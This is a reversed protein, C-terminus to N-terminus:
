SNQKIVSRNYSQTKQKENMMLRRPKPWRRKLWLMHKQTRLRTKLMKKRERRESNQKSNKPQKFRRKKLSSPSHLHGKQAQV